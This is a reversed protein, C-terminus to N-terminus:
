EATINVEDLTNADLARTFWEKLLDLRETTEIRRVVAAPLKGLHKRLVQLLKERQNRVEGEQRGEQRGEERLAEAITRGMDYVEQRRADNQVASAVKEVLPERESPERENYILAEVYSLLELWRARD